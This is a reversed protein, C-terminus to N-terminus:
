PFSEAFANKYSRALQNTQLLHAQHDFMLQSCCACM